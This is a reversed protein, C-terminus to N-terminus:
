VVFAVIEVGGDRAQLGEAGLVQAREVQVDELVAQVGGGGVAGRPARGLRRQQVDGLRQELQHRRDQREGGLLGPLCQGIRGQLVLGVGRAHGDEGLDIVGQRREGVGIRQGGFPAAQAGDAGIHLALEFFHARGARDARRQLGLHVQVRGAGVVIQQGAQAVVQAEDQDDRAGAHMGALALQADLDRWGRVLFALAAPMPAQVDAAIGVMGLDAAAADGVQEARAFRAGLCLAIAGAVPCDAARGPREGRRAWQSPRAATSITSSWSVLSYKSEANAYPSRSLTNGTKSRVSTYLRPAAKLKRAESAPQCRQNKVASPMTAAITMTQSSRRLWSW